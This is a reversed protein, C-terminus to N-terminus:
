LQMLQQVEGDEKLEGSGKFKTRKRREAWGAPNACNGVEAGRSLGGSKPRIGTM